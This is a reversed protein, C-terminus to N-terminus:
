RQEQLDEHKAQLLEVLRPVAKEVTRAQKQTGSAINTLIWASEFQAFLDSGNLAAIVGDVIGSDIVSQLPPSKDACTLKRIGRLGELRKAGTSKPDLILSTFHALTSDDHPLSLATHDINLPMSSSTKIGTPTIATTPVAASSSSSPHSHGSGGHNHGIHSHGSSGGHSHGHGSSSSSSSHGGHSHGHGSSSSSASHGGGHSHTHQHGGSGSGHSHLYEGSMMSRAMEQVDPAIIQHITSSSPFSFTRSNTGNAGVAAAKKGGKTKGSSAAPM